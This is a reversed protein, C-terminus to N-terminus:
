ESFDHVTLLWWCSKSRDLFLAVVQASKNTDAVDFSKLGIVGVIILAICGIKASSYSKGTFSDNGM